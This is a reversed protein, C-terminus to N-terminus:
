APYGHMLFSNLGTAAVRSLAGEELEGEVPLCPALLHVLPEWTPADADEVVLAVCQTGPPAGTWRLPPSLGDADATYRTPIPQADGFAPSEVRLSLPADLGDAHILLKEDGARINQLLNGLAKPLHQLM